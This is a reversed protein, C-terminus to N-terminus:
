VQNKINECDRYHDEAETKLQDKLLEVQKILSTNDSELKKIKDGAYKQRGEATSFLKEQESLKSVLEKNSDSM